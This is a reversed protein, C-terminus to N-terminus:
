LDRAQIPGPLPSTTALGSPATLACPSGRFSAAAQAPTWVGTPWSAPKPAPFRRAKSSRCIARCGHWIGCGFRTWSATSRTPARPRPQSGPGWIPWYDGADTVTLRRLELEGDGELFATLNLTYIEFNGDQNSQFVIQRGDPSWAPDENVSGKTTIQQEGSGDTNMIFLQAGHGVGAMFAIREGDPSWAPFFDRRQNNTLRRQNSSDADALYIELNGDRNSVFVIQSGDPSWDAWFGDEILLKLGSGDVNLQYINGQFGQEADFSIKSGDPHWDPHHVSMETEVVMHEESGDANIMYLQYFCEPFCGGPDPDERNSLFAIRSGDPSWIPAVEDFTNFTLRYQDSGDSNMTYLEANGDRESYFVILGSDADEKSSQDLRELYSQV